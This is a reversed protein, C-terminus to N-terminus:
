LEIDSEIENGWVDWGDVKERAFLEIRPIDGCLQVIRDRVEDPKKSHREIHTDIISHVSKSIRKPSGRTALLCLESNARTWYGLGWFWSDAIQNRKVWTFAVTKYTFGWTNILELGEQLCPNTVWLFLISDDASITSVPLNQIDEKTMLKYHRSPSRKCTSPVGLFQNKLNQKYNWDKFFWPPDAYIINYKKM